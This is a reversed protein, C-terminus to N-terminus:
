CLLMRFFACILVCLAATMPVSKGTKQVLCEYCKCSQRPKLLTLTYNSNSSGQKEARAKLETIGAATGVAVM